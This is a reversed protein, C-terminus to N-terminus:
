HLTNGPDLETRTSIALETGFDAKASNYDAIQVNLWLILSYLGIVQSLLVNLIFIVVQTCASIRRANDPELRAICENLGRINHQVILIHTLLSGLM